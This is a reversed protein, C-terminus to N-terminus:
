FALFQFNSFIPMIIFDKKVCRGKGFFEPPPLNRKDWIEWKEGMLPDDFDARRKLWIRLDDKKEEPIPSSAVEPRFESEEVTERDSDEIRLKEEDNLSEDEIESAENEVMLAVAGDQFKLAEKSILSENLDGYEDLVEDVVTDMIDKDDEEELGVELCEKQAYEAILSRGSENDDESSSNEFVKAIEVSADEGKTEEQASKSVLSGTETEPPFQHLKKLHLTM